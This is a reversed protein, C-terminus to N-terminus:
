WCFCFRQRFKPNILFHLSKENQICTYSMAKPAQYITVTISPYPDSMYMICAETISHAIRHILWKVNNNNNKKKKQCFYFSVVLYGNLPMKKLGIKKRNTKDDMTWRVDYLVTSIFCAYNTKTMDFSCFFTM